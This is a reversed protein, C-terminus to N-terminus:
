FVHETVTTMPTFHAITVDIFDLFRFHKVCLVAVMDAASLSQCSTWFPMFKNPFPKNPFSLAARNDDM